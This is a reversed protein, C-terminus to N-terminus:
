DKLLILTATNPSLDRHTHGRGTTDEMLRADGARFIHKTGDGFGIEVEGLMHIILRRETLSHFDMDRLEEHHAVRVETVNTLSSLDPRSALDLEEIHSEGDTGTFVRYTGV